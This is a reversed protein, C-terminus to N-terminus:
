RVAFYRMVQEGSDNDTFWDAYLVGTNPDVMVGKTNDIRVHATYDGVPLNKPVDWEFQLDLYEPFGGLAITQRGIETLSGTYYAPLGEERPLGDDHDTLDWPTLDVLLRVTASGVAQRGSNRVRVNFTATEGREAGAVEIEPPNVLLDPQVTRLIEGTVLVDEPPIEGGPLDALYDSFARWIPIGTDVYPRGTDPDEMLLRVLGLGPQYGRLLTNMAPAMTAAFTEVVVMQYVRDPDVPEGGILVSGPVVHEFMPATMDVEYSLGAIQVVDINMEDAVPPILGLLEPITHVIELLYEVATTQRKWTGPLLLASADMLGPRLTLVALTDPNTGEEDMQHMSLVEYAMAPTVPGPWLDTRYLSPIVISTQVPQGIQAMKWLFSDNILNGMGSITQARHSLWDTAQTLEEGFVDGHREIVAEKWGQVEDATQEDRGLDGNIQILRSDLVDLGGVVLDAVADVRAVFLGGERAQVIPTVKGAPNPVKIPHNLQVHSHGSILLDIARGSDKGQGYKAILDDYGPPLNVRDGFGLGGHSLVVIVDAGQELLDDIGENIYDSKRPDPSFFKLGESHPNPAGVVKLFFPDGPVQTYVGKDTVVGLVGVRVPGAEVITTQQYLRQSTMDAFDTEFLEAYGTLDERLKSPDVNGFTVEMPHGKVGDTFEGAAASVVETLFPIGFHYDHNGVQWVDVGARDWAAILWSLFGPQDHYITNEFDDGADLIVTPVGIRDNNTRITQFLWAIRSFGGQPDDPPGWPEAHSHFDNISLFCIPQSSVTPQPYASLNFIVPRAAGAPSSVSVRLMGPRDGLLVRCAAMGNADTRSDIALLEAEARGEGEGTLLDFAIKRDAAPAGDAYRASVILKDFLEEGIFGSQLNGGEITLFFTEGSRDDADGSSDDGCGCLVLALLLVALRIATRKM